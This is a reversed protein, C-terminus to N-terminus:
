DETLDDGLKKTGAEYLAKSFEIFEFAAKLREEPSLTKTAEGEQLLDKLRDKKISFIAM